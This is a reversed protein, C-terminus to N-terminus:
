HKFAQSLLAADRAYTLTARDFGHALLDSEIQRFYTSFDSASWPKPASFSGAFREVARVSDGAALAVLGANVWDIPTRGLEMMKQAYLEAKAFDRRLVHIWAIFRTADQEKPGMVEAQYLYPLAEDYIGQKLLCQAMEILLDFQTPHLMLAEDLLATAETYNKRKIYYHALFRLTWEDGPYLRNCRTLVREALQPESPKKAYACYAYRQMVEKSPAPEAGDTATENQATEMLQQYLVFAEAYRRKGFLYAGFLLQTGTGFWANLAPIRSLHVQAAFPNIWEARDPHLTYFRYLDHIYCRSLREAHKRREHPTAADDDWPIATPLADTLTRRQDDPLSSFGIFFSYKDTSCLQPMESFADAMRELSEQRECRQAVVTNTKDYPRLWNCAHRFFPAHILSTFVNLMVDAGERRMDNIEQLYRNLSSHRLTEEWEPQLQSLDGQQTKLRFLRQLEPSIKEELCTKARDAEFAQYIQLQIATLPHYGGEERGHTRRLRELHATLQREHAIREGHVMCILALGVWARQRLEEPCDDDEIRDMLLETKIPDFWQLVSLTLGTAMLCRLSLPMTPLLMLQVAAIRDEEDGPFNTWLANFCNDAVNEVAQATTLPAANPDSLQACLPFLQRRLYCLPSQTTDSPVMARLRRRQAYYYRREDSAAESQLDAWLDNLHATECWIKDYMEDRM